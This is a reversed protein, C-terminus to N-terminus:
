VPGSVVGAAERLKVICETLEDISECEMLQRTIALTTSQMIQVACQTAAQQQQRTAQIADSAAQSVAQEVARTGPSSIRFVSPQEESM